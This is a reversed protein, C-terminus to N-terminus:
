NQRDRALAVGARGAMEFSQAAARRTKAPKPRRRVALLRGGRRRWRAGPGRPADGQCGRCRASEGGRESGTTDGKGGYGGGRMWEEVAVGGGRLDITLELANEAARATNKHTNTHPNTFECLLVRVRRVSATCLCWGAQSALARAGGPGGCRRREPAQPRPRRAGAFPAPPCPSYRSRRALASLPARPRPSRPAPCPALHRARPRAPSRVKRPRPWSPSLGGAREAIQAGPLLGACLILM